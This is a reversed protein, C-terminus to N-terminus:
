LLLWLWFPITVLSLLTTVVITQGTFDPCGGYRKAILVSSAAAPMLAVVISVEYIEKQLPFLKLLFILAAPLVLLRLITIYAADLPYKLLKGASFYLAAGTLILMFPVAMSGMMASTGAIFHPVPIRFFCFLLALVVAALNISFVNKVSEKLSGLGTFTLIGITWFGITSGVNMLLLLAIHREGWLSDLVILPLFVYNNIACIHHLTAHREPTSYFLWRKFLIGILASCFMIGFGLLPMLWLETTNDPNFNRTITSFTLFPFFVDLALRSLGSLNNARIMRIRM